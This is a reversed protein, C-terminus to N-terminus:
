GAAPLSPSRACQDIAHKLAQFIRQDTCQAVNFRMFGNASSSSSFANGPALVVNDKLCLKALTAADHGDPVHCWLFMGATPQIWPKFGLANLQQTVALRLTGLRRRVLDMHKRYSGDALALAVFEGSLRNSGFSTAIKLDVINEIWDQNTAIYGCRLSASLTKSFSGIQIVRRLGDFASLRPAPVEEFDAFIDDEVVTLNADEALRLLQHANAPSIIAGTPNHVGSNTIYLRPTHEKLAKEFAKLDPGSPTYPIGVAEVRHAKLLAHFNFYCPDDLLVTDGPQLIFRCVLDIAHTGSDTLTIQNPRADIGHNAFRRALIERLQSSGFTTEYDALRSGETRALSRLARRVGEQFMWSAPLWGCGPKLIEDRSDLAQKAIWLPDVERERKPALDAMALPATLGCVYYGSGPRARVIGEAVLREYAEVVTSVSFGLAKAQQRVSPLRDGPMTRRSSIGAKIAEM